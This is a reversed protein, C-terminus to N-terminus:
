LPKRMKIRYKSVTFFFIIPKYLHKMCIIHLLEYMLSSKWTSIIPIQFFYMPQMINRRYSHPIFLWNSHGSYSLIQRRYTGKLNHFQHTLWTKNYSPCPYTENHM